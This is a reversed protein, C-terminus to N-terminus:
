EIVRYMFMNYIHLWMYIYNEDSTSIFVIENTYRLLKHFVKITYVTSDSDSYFDYTIILIIIQKLKKEEFKGCQKILYRFCM